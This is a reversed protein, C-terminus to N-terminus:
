CFYYFEVLIFNNKKWRIWGSLKKGKPCEECIKLCEVFIWDGSNKKVSYSYNEARPIKQLRVTDTYLASESKVKIFVNKLFVDWVQFKAFGKVDKASIYRKQGKIYVTFRGQLQMSDADIIMVGYDPYFARIDNIAEKGAGNVKYEDSEKEKYITAFVTGNESYVNVKTNYTLKLLDVRLVGISSIQDQAFLCNFNVLLISFLILRDM